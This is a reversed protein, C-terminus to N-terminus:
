RYADLVIDENSSQAYQVLPNTLQHSKIFPIWAPRLTFLYLSHVLILIIDDDDDSSSSMELLCTLMTICTDLLRCYDIKFQNLNSEDGTSRIREIMTWSCNRVLIRISHHWQQFFLTQSTMWSAFMPLLSSRIDLQIQDRLNAKYGDAYNLCSSIFGAQEISLQNLNKTTVRKFILRCSASCLFRSISEILAELLPNIQIDHRGRQLLALVTIMDSICRVRVDYILEFQISM